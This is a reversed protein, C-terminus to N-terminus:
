YAALGDCTARVTAFRDRIRLCGATRSALARDVSGNLNPVALRGGPVLSRIPSSPISLWVFTRVIFLLSTYTCRSLPAPHVIRVSRSGSPM